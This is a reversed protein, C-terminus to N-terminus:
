VDFLEKTNELGIAGEKFAHKSVIPTKTYTLISFPSCPLLSSHTDHSGSFVSIFVYQYQIRGPM